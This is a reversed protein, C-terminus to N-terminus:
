RTKIFDQNILDAMKLFLLYASKIKTNSQTVLDKVESVNVEKSTKQRNAIESSTATSSGTWFTSTATSTSKLFEPATELDLNTSTQNKITTTESSFVLTEEITSSTKAFLTALLADAKKNLLESLEIDGAAQNLLKELEAINFGIGKLKKLDASIRQLRKKSMEIIKTEQSALIASLARQISTEYIGLRWNKIDQALKKIDDQSQVDNIKKATELYWREISQLDEIIAKLYDESTVLNKVKELLEQNEKISLDIIEKLVQEKDSLKTEEQSSFFKDLTEQIQELITGSKKNTPEKEPGLLVLQSNNSENKSGEPEPEILSTQSFSFYVPTLILSFVLLNIIFIKKSNM